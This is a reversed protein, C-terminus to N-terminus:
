VGGSQLERRVRWGTTSYCAHAVYIIIYGQQTCRFVGFTTNKDIQISIKVYFPQKLSNFAARGSVARTITILSGVKFVQTLADNRVNNM